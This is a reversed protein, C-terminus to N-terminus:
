RQLRAPIEMPTAEPEEASSWCEILLGPYEVRSRPERHRTGRVRVEEFSLTEDRGLTNDVVLALRVPLQRMGAHLQTGTFLSCVVGAYIWLFSGDQDQGRFESQTRTWDFGAGPHFKIPKELRVFFYDSRDPGPIQRIVKGTIPLQIQLEPVAYPLGGGSQDWDVSDITLYLATRMQAQEVTQTAGTARSQALMNEVGQINTLRETYVTMEFIGPEILGAGVRGARSLITM